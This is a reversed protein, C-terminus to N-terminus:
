ESDPKKWDRLQKAIKIGIYVATLVMVWNVDTFSAITAVYVGNSDRDFFPSLRAPMTM